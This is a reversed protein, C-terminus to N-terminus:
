KDKKKQRNLPQCCIKGSTKIYILIRKINSYDFNYNGINENSAFKELYDHTQPRYENKKM